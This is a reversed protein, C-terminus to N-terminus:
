LCRLLEVYIEIKKIEVGCEYPKESQRILQLENVLLELKNKREGFEEKSWIRLHAMSTTASKKFLQVPNANTGGGHRTWENKVIDKCADCSSWMDEYHIRRWSKRKYMQEVGKKVVKMMIPSHDSTWSELNTAVLEQFHNGWEKNCLFGNIREEIFNPGYRQNSWTFFRWTCGLDALSCERIANRFESIM